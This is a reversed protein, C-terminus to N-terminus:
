AGVEVGPATAETTMGQEWEHEYDYQALDWRAERDMRRMGSLVVSSVVAVFMAINSPSTLKSEFFGAALNAMVLGLMLRALDSIDSFPSRVILRLALVGMLIFAGTYFIIGVLGGEFWTSLYANHFGFELSSSGMGNGLWPSALCLDVARDWLDSRGTTDLTLFRRHIFEAQDPMFNLVVAVLSVGLILLLTAIAIKKFGLRALLPLCGVFGALTGTRQGSLICLMGTCVAIFICYWRWSRLHPSMAGWVATPLLLGGTLVFLPASSSAGSFRVGQRLSGLSVLGLMVYLGGGLLFLKLLRYVDDLTRLHDATAAAMPLTAVLMLLGTQISWLAVPSLPATLLGYAAYVSLMVAPLGPLRAGRVATLAILLMVVWRLLTSGADIAPVAFGSFMLLFLYAGLLIMRKGTVALALLGLLLALVAVLGLPGASDMFGSIRGFLDM